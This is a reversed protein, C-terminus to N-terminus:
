TSNPQLCSTDLPIVGAFSAYTIGKLALPYWICVYNCIYPIRQSISLYMSGKPGADSVSGVDASRRHLDRCAVGPDERLLSAVQTLAVSVSGPTTSGKGQPQLYGLTPIM